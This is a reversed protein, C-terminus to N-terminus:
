LRQSLIVELIWKRGVMGLFVCICEDYMMQTRNNVLRLLTFCYHVEVYVFLALYYHTM